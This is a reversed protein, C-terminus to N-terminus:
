AEFVTFVVSIIYGNNLNKSLRYDGADLTTGFLEVIKLTETYTGINNVSIAIDKVEGICPIEEVVDGDIKELIFYKDLVIKKGSYNKIEIEITESETTVESLVCFEINNYNGGTFFAIFSLLIALLRSFFNM